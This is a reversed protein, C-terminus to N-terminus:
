SLWESTPSLEEQFNEFCVGCNHILSLEGLVKKFCLYLTIFGPSSSGSDHVSERFDKSLSRWLQWDILAGSAGLSTYGHSSVRSSQFSM